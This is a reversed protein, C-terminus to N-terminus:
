RSTAVPRVAGLRERNLILSPVDTVFGGRATSLLPAVNRTTPDFTVWRFEGVLDLVARGRRWGKIAVSSEPRPHLESPLEVRRVDNSGDTSVLVLESVGADRVVTSLTAGDPGWVWGGFEEVRETVPVRASVKTRLDRSFIGAAVENGAAINDFLAIRTSDPSWVAELAFGEPVPSLTGTALELVAATNAAVLAIAAGDPAWALSFGQPGGETATFTHGTVPVVRVNRNELTLIYVTRIAKGEPSCRVWALQTGDESLAPPCADLVGPVSGGESEPLSPLARPQGGDADVLFSNSGDSALAAARRIPEDLVSPPTGSPSDVHFPAPLRGIDSPSNGALQPLVAVGGIAVAATVTGTIAAALRQRRQRRWRARARAGAAWAMPRYPGDASYDHLAERLETSM